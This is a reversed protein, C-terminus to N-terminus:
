KRSSRVGFHGLKGPDSVVRVNLRRALYQSGIEGKSVFDARV